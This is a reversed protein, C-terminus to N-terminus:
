APSVNCSASASPSSRSAACRPPRPRKQLDTLAADRARLDRELKDTGSIRDALTRTQEALGQELALIEQHRARATTEAEAMM